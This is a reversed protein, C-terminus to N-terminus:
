KGLPHAIHADAPPTFEFTSPPLATRRTGTYTTVVEDGRPMTLDTRHVNLDSDLFVTLQQVIRRLNGKKPTLIVRYGGGERSVALNYYTEVRGFNLGATLAAMADDFMARQGLTYKEAEKFNPYYLWLVHGNSVTFSPNSGTVERRFKNPTQFSITGASAIPAKLLHSTRRESFNAQISPYQNKLAELRGLLDSREAPTLTQGAGATETNKAAGAAATKAEAAKAAPTFPAAASVAALTLYTLLKM